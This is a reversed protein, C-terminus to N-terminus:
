ENFEPARPGNNCDGRVAAAEIEGMAESRSLPFGAQSREAPPWHKQIPKEPDFEKVQAEHMFFTKHGGCSECRLVTTPM